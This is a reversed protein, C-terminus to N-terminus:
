ALQYGESFAAFALQMGEATCQLMVCLVCDELWVVSVNKLSLFDKLECLLLM